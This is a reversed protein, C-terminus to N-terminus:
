RSLAKKVARVLGDAGDAWGRAAAYAAIAAPDAAEAPLRDWFREFSLSGTVFIEGAKIAAVLELIAVVELQRRNFARKDDAHDHVLDHWERPLTNASVGDIDRYDSQPSEENTLSRVLRLLSATVPTGQLPLIEVLRLLARRLPVFAARAFPRWNQREHRLHEECSKALAERGGTAAFLTEVQLIKQVPGIESGHVILSDHFARILVDTKNHRAQYWEALRQSSKWEVKRVLRLLMQTLDDLIQARADHITAMLLTHRRPTIYERLELANLRKAENAWQTVKSDAISQLAATPNPLQQIWQYRDVLANLNKRSARGPAACLTAFPSKQTKPDVVLLAELVAHQESGIRGCVEDWQTTNINSHATGALRRLTALAPLEFGHRILADIASNIIDAPDTRAQATKRMTAQALARAQSGWSTVKLRELIIPRHRYLTRKPFNPTSLSEVGIRNAVYEIAAPPVDAAGLFRGITQFIKLQVLLAVQSSPTRAITPAWKREDFSPNFLQYLDGQTLPNPLEPYIVRATTPSM